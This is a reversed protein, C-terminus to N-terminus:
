SASRSANMYARRYVKVDPLKQVTMPDWPLQSFFPHCQPTTKLNTHSIDRILANM